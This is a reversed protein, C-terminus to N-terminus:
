RTNTPEFGVREALRYRSFLSPVSAAVVLGGGLLLCLWGFADGIRDYLTSGGRGDLPLDGILTTFAASTRTQTVIRGYRDSLMLLGRGATRAMPVGNEVSRLVANRAHFWDDAASGLNAWDGHTGIESAPVAFLRPQMTVADHRLMQPFDMDFCIEPEIGNGLAQPGPGPTFAQSELGPVLHRKEYSMPKPGGPEFAWAINRRAGDRMANFGGIVTAGSGDAAAALKARAVERWPEAIQAMNEPLVVLQVKGPGLKRIEATYADIVGLTIQEIEAPTGNRPAAYEYRNSDILAVRVGSEPPHSIRLYGYLANAAFLGAAILVPLPNRTRLSLAVGAAVIGLLFTVGAFGVLSASQIMVPAIVEAAAPSVITGTGPYFSLLLDCGAWLAAFAFMTAVPGFAKNIRHAGLAALAFPLAPTLIDLALVPGPFVHIYAQVLSILSLAFAAWAALFAKWPRAAGFAFWLVPVPALWALWWANGLGFAFYCGVATLIVCALARM